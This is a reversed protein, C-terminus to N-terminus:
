RANPTTWKSSAKLKVPTKQHLIDNVRGQLMLRVMDEDIPGYRINQGQIMALNFVHRTPPPPWQLTLFSPIKTQYRSRLYHVHANLVSRRTGRIKTWLRNCINPQHVGINRDNDTNHISLPLANISDSGNHSDSRSTSENLLKCLEEVLDQRKLRWFVQALKRYTAKEGYKKKWRRLMAVKRRRAPQSDEKIEEEEADTLGLFSAVLQWDTLTLAIESLHDDRCPQDLKEPAM